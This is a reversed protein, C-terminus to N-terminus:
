CGVLHNHKITDNVASLKFTCCVSFVWFSRSTCRRENMICYKTSEGIKNIVTCKSRPMLYQKLKNINIMQYFQLLNQKQRPFSFLTCFLAVSIAVKLFLHLLILRKLHFLRSSTWCASLSGTQLWHYKLKVQSLDKDIGEDNKILNCPCSQM